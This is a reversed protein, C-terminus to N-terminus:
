VANLAFGHQSLKQCKHSTDRFLGGPLDLHSCCSWEWSDDRGCPVTLLNIDAWVSLPQGSEQDFTQQQSCCLLIMQNGFAIRQCSRKSLDIVGFEERGGSSHQSTSLFFCASVPSHIAIQDERTTPFLQLHSWAQATQRPTPNWMISDKLPLCPSFLPVAWIGNTREDLSNYGWQIHICPSLFFYPFMQTM